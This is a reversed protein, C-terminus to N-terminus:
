IQPPFSADSGHGHMESARHLTEISASSLNVSRPRLFHSTWIVHKQGKNSFFMVATHQRFADIYVGDDKRAVTETAIPCHPREKMGKM